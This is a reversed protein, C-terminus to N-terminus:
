PIFDAPLMAKFGERVPKLNKSEAGFALFLGRRAAVVGGLVHRHVDGAHPDWDEM